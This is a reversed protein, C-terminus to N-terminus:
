SGYRIVVEDGVARSWGVLVLAEDHAHGQSHFQPNEMKLGVFQEHRPFALLVFIGSVSGQVANRINHHANASIMSDRSVMTTVAKRTATQAM